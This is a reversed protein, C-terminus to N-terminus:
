YLIKKKVNIPKRINFWGQMQRMITPNLEALKPPCRFRYDHPVGVGCDKRRDEKLKSRYQIVIEYDYGSLQTMLTKLSLVTTYYLGKSGKIERWVCSSSWEVFRIQQKKEKLEFYKRKKGM